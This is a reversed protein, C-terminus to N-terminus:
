CSAFLYSCLKITHRNGVSCEICTCIVAHRLFSSSHDIITGYLTQLRLVDSSHELWGVERQQIVAPAARKVYYVNAVDTLVQQWWKGYPLNDGHVFIAEPKLNISASKFSIYNLFTFEWRGLSVYHVKNPVPHTLNNTHRDHKSSILVADLVYGCKSVIKTQSDVLAPGKNENAKCFERVKLDGYISDDGFITAKRPFSYM